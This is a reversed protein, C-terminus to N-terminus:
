VFSHTNGLFRFLPALCVPINYFRNLHKSKYHFNSIAETLNIISYDMLLWTVIIRNLDFAHTQIDWEVGSLVRQKSSLTFTTLPRFM